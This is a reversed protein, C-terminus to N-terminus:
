KGLLMNYLNNIREFASRIQENMELDSKKWRQEIEFYQNFSEKFINFFVINKKAVNILQKGQEDVVDFNYNPDIIRDLFETIADKSFINENHVYEGYKIMFVLYTFLNKFLEPLKNQYNEIFKMVSPLPNYRAIYKLIRELIVICKEDNIDGLESLLKYRNEESLNDFMKTTDLYYFFKLAVSLLNNNLVEEIFKQYYENINTFQYDNMYLYKFYVDILKQLNSNKQKSYMKMIKIIFEPNANDIDSKIKDLTKQTKENEKFSYILDGEKYNEGYIAKFFNNKTMGDLDNSSIAKSTWIIFDHLLIFFQKTKNIEYENLFNRPGRWEITGQPHIHISRYKETSFYTELADFNKNKIYENIDTLFSKDAYEDDFFDIGKFKELRNRMKTDMALQSVVWIVEKDSIDPFSFHIHFGCSKNTYIKKNKFIIDLGNLCNKIQAPTFKMVPTAWEFPYDYTDDGKLSADSKISVEDESFKFAKALISKLEDRIEDDDRRDDTFYDDDEDYNDGSPMYGNSYFAELEFGFKFESALYDELLIM